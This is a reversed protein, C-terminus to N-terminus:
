MFLGDGFSVAFDYCWVSIGNMEDLQSPSELKLTLTANNYAQGNIQPGIAFGKDVYDNDIGGYFYVTPGEGDYTFSTVELTCNDLISVQGSVMHHLTSLIALQGVKPHDSNDCSYASTSDTSETMMDDAETTESANDETSDTAMTADNSETLSTTTDESDSSCAALALLLLLSIILRM